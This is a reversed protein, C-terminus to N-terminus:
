VAQGIILGFALKEAFKYFLRRNRIHWGRDAVRVVIPM